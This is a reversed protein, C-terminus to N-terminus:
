KLLRVGKTALSNIDSRMTSLDSRMAYLERTNVDINNIGKLMDQCVGHIRKNIDNSQVMQESIGLTTALIQRSHEVSINFLGDLRDGTDQSMAAFGKAEASRTDKNGDSLYKDAWAYKEDLGQQLKDMMSNILEEENASIYGDSWFEALKKRINEMPAAIDAKMAEIIMNKIMKKVFDKSSAARDEGAAWADAYASAFDDIASKIDSGFIVDIAKEKNEELVINIQEIENEWEKIRGKDSKKKGQESKIQQRILEQQKRLAEDQQKIMKSADKSYAKDISRSLKDYAKNLAEIQDQLRQIQKEKKRDKIKGWVTVVSSIGSVVGQIGGVVDGSMIRGVGAATSGLGGIADIALGIDEALKDDGLINALDNGFSQVAPLAGMIANSINQIGMGINGAGGKGIQKAADSIQSELLKFPSKSGLVGTLSNVGNKLSEVAETSNNLNDLSNSSIGLNLIENRTVTKGNIVANGNEDKASELYQLLLKVKDIITQIEKVSKQSTDAFLQAMLNTSGKVSQDLEDLENAMEKSLSAKEGGTMAESILKEYKQTIALRKEQYNGFKIFYENWSKDINDLIAGEQKKSIDQIIKDFISTDVNITSPDFTKKIYSKNQKAKLDEEADFKEKEAQIYAVIYDDKQRELAQIELKNNLERQKIKKIFLNEEADISAQEVQNVLDVEIRARNIAQKDLLQNLKDKQSNIINKDRTADEADKPEVIKNAFKQSYIQKAIELYKNSANQEDKIWKDLQDKNMSNFENRQQVLEIQNKKQEKVTKGTLRGLEADIGQLKRGLKQAEIFAKNKTESSQDLYSTSGGFAGGSIFVYEGKQSIEKQKDYEKQLESRQKKLTDISEKHVFELRATEADIYDYVLQTNISLINGYEDFESVVGPITNSITAMIESLRKQEDSNLKGKLKLDEYESALPSINVELNAVTAIHDDFVETATRTEGTVQEIVNALENYFKNKLTSLWTFKKGYNTQANELRNIAQLEKDTETLTVKGQEQMKKNILDIASGVFDGSAKAKAQLEAVNIQLNDLIMVSKRGLGTVISNVLYDVSEGTAQAQQQAFKLLTGLKEVPIGFNQAKVAAKMLELDSVTGSTATRLNNLLDPNNLKKFAIEVGEAKKAMGVAELTFDKVKLVLSTFGAIGAAIAGLIAGKIATSGSVGFKSILSTGKDVEKNLDNQKNAADVAVKGISSSSEDIKEVMKKTAKNSKDIEETYESVKKKTRNIEKGFDEVATEANDFTEDVTKGSEEVRDIFKGAAKESKELAKLFQKEEATIKFHLGDAM